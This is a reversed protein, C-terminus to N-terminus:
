LVRARRLYDALDDPVRTNPPAKIVNEGEPQKRQEKRLDRLTISEVVETEPKHAHVVSNFIAGCVADSLDKTGKRPHDVKGKILMLQNLESKLLDENPGLLRGDYMVSLFDDYHKKAVSLTGTTINNNELEKMTDHSNWRDFTVLQIDFGKRRVAKIYDVVERFDVSRHETPTWWRVADVVVFPLVERYHEGVSIEVWKDVHALGVACHDHKQALDVHMYYKTEDKPQFSPHFMGYQDVGNLRTFSEEIAEKNKFFTNDKTSTPMCAFRGLADAPDDDFDKTYDEITRIPNVEWSPRRLAFVGKYKYRIIHDEEWAITFENGEFGDPLDPDRKFTHHKMVTEKDVILRDYAQQIYDGEFRPFSLLALKGFDPFRSTVSGRYMKYIEPATKAQTYGSTSELAFGSIEDLIVMITHYGEFAERESHGSYVNINKDFKIENAKPEDYKGDFWPCKKIRQVLADFFVRKAQDANIAINIIDIADGSPKGYYRAPDTLCLLQYVVYAVAVTSCFDKGSGKGLQLVIENCTQKFRQPGKDPGYLTILTSLKYIQSMAKVMQLQYESLPPLGLFDKSTVFEEVEVPEEEFDEGSAARWADKFFDSM